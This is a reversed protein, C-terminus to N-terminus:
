YLSWEDQRGELMRRMRDDLEEQREDAFLAELEALTGNFRSMDVSAGVGGIKGSDTFQWLAWSGWGKPLSPRSANTYCSVWLPHGSLAASGDTHPDWFWAGTYIVVRRAPMGTTTMVTKVWATCWAVVEAAGIEQDVLQQTVDEIDLVYFDGASTNRGGMAVTTVFHRAQAAADEAPHAFHYAGRVRLGAAAMGKWNAAFQKDVYDLGESAKAIGFSAGGAKVKAWNVAGQFHSVDPGFPLTSLNDNALKLANALLIAAISRPILM